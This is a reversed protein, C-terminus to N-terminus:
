LGGFVFSSTFKDRCYFSAHTYLGAHQLDALLMELPRIIDLRNCNIEIKDECDKGGHASM